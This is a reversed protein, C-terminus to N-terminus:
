QKESANHKQELFTCPFLCLEFDNLNKLADIVFNSNEFVVFGHCICKDQPELLKIYYNSVTDEIGMYEWRTNMTYLLTHIVYYTYSFNRVGGDEHIMDQKTCLRKWVNDMFIQNM